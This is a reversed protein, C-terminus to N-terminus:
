SSACARTGKRSMAFRFFAEGTGELIVPDREVVFGLMEIFDIALENKAHVANVLEYDMSWERVWRRSERVIWRKRLAGEETLTGWPVGYGKPVNTVMLGGIGLLDGTDCAAAALCKMSQSVCGVLAEYGSSYGTAKAEAIDAERMRAALALLVDHSPEIYVCGRDPDM